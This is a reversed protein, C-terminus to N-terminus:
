EREELIEVEIAKEKRYAWWMFLATLMSMLLTVLNKAMELWVGLAIVAPHQTAWDQEMEEKKAKVVPKQSASPSMPVHSRPVTKPLVARVARSALEKKQFRSVDSYAQFFWWASAALFIVLVLGMFKVKRNVGSMLEGGCGPINTCGLFDEVV